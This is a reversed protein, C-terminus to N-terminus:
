MLTHDQEKPLFLLQWTVGLLKLSARDSTSKSTISTQTQFELLNIKTM